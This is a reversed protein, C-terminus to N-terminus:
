FGLTLRLMNEKQMIINNVRPLRWRLTTIEPTLLHPQHMLFNIHICSIHIDFGHDHFLHKRHQGNKRLGHLGFRLAGVLM